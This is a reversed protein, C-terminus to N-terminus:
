FFKFLNTFFVSITIEPSYIQWRMIHNTGDPTPFKECIVVNFNYLKAAALLEVNGAWFRDQRMDIMRDRIENMEHFIGIFFISLFISFDFLMSWWSNREDESRTFQDLTEEIFDVIDERMREHNAETGTLCM